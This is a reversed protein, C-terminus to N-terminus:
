IHILSLFFANTVGSQIANERCRDLALPAIEWGHFESTPFAGAMTVVAVGSGCGVDAVSVGSNLEDILGDLEPLVEQVLVQEYWPRLLREMWQVRGSTGGKEIDSWSIGIGTKFSRPIESLLATRQPFNDFWRAMSRIEDEEALLLGAEPSLHFLGDGEYEILGAAVQLSLWERVFREHLGARKAVEDSTIAGQGHMARYLGMEDGLYVMGSVLAGEYAGMIRKSLAGIKSQDM